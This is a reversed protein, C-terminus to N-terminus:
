RRYDLLRYDILKQTYDRIAFISLPLSFALGVVFFVLALFNIIVLVLALLYLNWRLDHFHRYSLSLAKIMSVKQTEAIVPVPLIIAWWYNVLVIWVLRLIPDSGFGPFGFCILYILTYYVASILALAFYAHYRKFADKLMPLSYEYDQRNSIAALGIFIFPVFISYALVKSGIQLLLHLATESDINLLGGWLFTLLVIPIM